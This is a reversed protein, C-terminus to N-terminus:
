AIQAELMKAINYTQATLQRIKRPNYHEERLRERDKVEKGDIHRALPVWLEGDKCIAYSEHVFNNREHSFDRIKTLTKKIADKKSSPLSSSKVISHLGNYKKNNKELGDLLSGITALSYDRLTDKFNGKNLRKICVRMVHELQGFAITLDGLAAILENPIDKSGLNIQRRESM